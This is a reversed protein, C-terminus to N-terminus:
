FSYLNKVDYKKTTYEKYLEPSAKEGMTTFNDILIWGTRRKGRVSSSAVVGTCPIQTEIHIMDIPDGSCFSNPVNVNHRTSIPMQIWFLQTGFFTDEYSVPKNFDIFTITGDEIYKEKLKGSAIKYHLGNSDVYEAKGFSNYNPAPNVFKYKSSMVNKRKKLNSHYPVKDGDQLFSYPPPGFKEIIKSDLDPQSFYDNNETFQIFQKRLSEESM